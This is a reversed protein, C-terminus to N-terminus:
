IPCTSFTCLVAALHVQLLHLFVLLTPSISQRVQTAMGPSGCLATKRLRRRCSENRYLTEQYLYTDSGPELSLFFVSMVRIVTCQTNQKYHHVSFNKKGLVIGIHFLRGEETNEDLVMSSNLSLNLMCRNLKNYITKIAWRSHKERKSFEFNLWGGCM